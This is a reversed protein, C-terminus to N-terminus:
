FLFIEETDVLLSQLSSDRRNAQDNIDSLLAKEQVWISYAWGVQSAVNPYLIREM